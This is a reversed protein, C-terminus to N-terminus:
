MADALDLFGQRYLGVIADRARAYTPEASSDALAPNLTGREVAIWLTSPVLAKLTGDGRRSRADSWDCAAIVVELMTPGDTQRRFSISSYLGVQAHNADTVTFRPSSALLGDVLGNIDTREAETLPLPTLITNTNVITKYKALVDPPRYVLIGGDSRKVHRRVSENMQDSQSTSTLGADDAAFPPGVFGSSCGLLALLALVAHVRMRAIRASIM